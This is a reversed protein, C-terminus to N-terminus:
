RGSLETNRAHFTRRSSLGASLIQERQPARPPTSLWPRMMTVSGQPVNVISVAASLQLEVALLELAEIEEADAVRM